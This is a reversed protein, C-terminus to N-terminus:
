TSYTLHRGLFVDDTLLLISLMEAVVAVPGCHHISDSNDVAQGPGTAGSRRVRRTVDRTKSADQLARQKSPLCRMRTTVQVDGTELSSSM